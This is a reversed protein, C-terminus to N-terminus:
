GWDPVEGSDSKRAQTGERVPDRGKRCRLRAIAGVGILLVSANAPGMRARWYIPVGRNTRAALEMRMKVDPVFEPESDDAFESPIKKTV